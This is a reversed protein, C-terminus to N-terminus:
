MRGTLEEYLEQKIAADLDDLTFIRYQTGNIMKVSVCHEGLWRYKQAITMKAFKVDFEEDTMPGEGM